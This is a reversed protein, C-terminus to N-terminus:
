GHIHYPVYQGRMHVVGFHSRKTTYDELLSQYDEVAEKKDGALDDIKLKLEDRLVQASIGATHSHWRATNSLRKAITRARQKKQKPTVPLQRAETINWDKFKYRVLWDRLLTISLERAQEFEYLEAQDFGGILVTLEADTLSREKSDKILDDYRQCYGLAPVLRDGREIQPDIPGLRSYYDMYIADGSMALVTGASYAYDPIAFNVVDYHHRITEVMRQVVEVMGGLTTLVIVLNRSNDVKRRSEIVRRLVSDVGYLLPGSWTLADGDFVEAVKGLLQDLQEEVILNADRSPM